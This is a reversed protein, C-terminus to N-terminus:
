SFVKSIVYYSFDIIIQIHHKLDFYHFIPAKTFSRPLYFFIFRAKLIVFNLTFSNINAFNSNTSKASKKNIKIKSLNRVKIYTGSGAISISNNKKEITKTNLSTKM